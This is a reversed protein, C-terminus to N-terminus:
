WYTPTAPVYTSLIALTAGVTSEWKMLATGSKNFARGKFTLTTKLIGDTFSDKCSVCYCEALVFRKARYSSGTTVEADATTEPSDSWLIAIRFRTNDNTISNNVPDTGGMNPKQAFIDWFGTATQDGTGITGATLAYGEFTVTTLGMSGFKPIQGLNLLNVVDMDKEGTDIDVTETLAHLALHTTGDTVEILCERQWADWSGTTGLAM